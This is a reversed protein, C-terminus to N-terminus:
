PALPLTITVTTGDGVASEVAITGGHQAIVAKTGYLGLGSGAVGRATSARYSRETVRPLEDAPIGVGRDRVAVVAMRERTSVTVRVPRAEASYKIANGVLNQLARGLRARDGVVIVPADPAEVAVARQPAVEAAVAQALAAVDVPDRELDLAQGVRLRAADDVAGITGLMREVAADIEALQTDLWAPDLPDGWRLRSRVLGARGRMTTLPTRLDHTALSLIDDQAQRLVREAVVQARSRVLETVDVELLLLGHVRGADDRLPQYTVDLVVDEPAGDGALRLSLAPDKFPEGTAYARDLAEFVGQGALTPFLERLPRGVLDGADGADRGMAALYAPNIFEFVHTPGTTVAIAAPAQQFYALLRARERDGASEERRRLTGGLGTPETEGREGRARTMRLIKAHGPCTM